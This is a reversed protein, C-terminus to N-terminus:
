RAPEDDPEVPMGTVSGLLSDQLFNSLERKKESHTAFTMAAQEIEDMTTM